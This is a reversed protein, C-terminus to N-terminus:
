LRQIISNRRARYGRYVRELVVAAAAEDQQPTKDEATARPKGDPGLAAKEMQELSHQLAQLQNPGLQAPAGEADTVLVGLRFVAEQFSAADLIKPSAPEYLDDIALSQAFLATARARPVAPATLAAFSLFRPLCVGRDAAPGNGHEGSPDGGSVAVAAAAAAASSSPASAVTSDGGTRRRAFADFLRAHVPTLRLLLANLAPVSTMAARYEALSLRKAHPALIRDFFSAVARELEAPTALASAAGDGGRLEQAWAMRILAEVFESLSFTSRKLATSQQAELQANHFVHMGVHLMRTKTSQLEAERGENISQFLQEPTVASTEPMPPLQSCLRLWNRRTMHIDWDVAGGREHVAHQQQRRAADRGNMGLVSAYHLYVDALVPFLNPMMAAALAAASPAEDAERVVAPLKPLAGLQISPWHREWTLSYSAYREAHRGAHLAARDGSAEDLISRMVYSADVARSVATWRAAAGVGKAEVKAVKEEEAEEEEEEKMELYKPPAPSAEAAGDGAACCSRWALLALFGFLYLLALVPVSASIISAATLDPPLSPPPPPAPPPALPLPPPLYPSPPPPLPPPPPLTPSPPPPSPLPPLPAPPLSPPHPHPLGPPPSPTPPPPSPAPSAPPPSPPAAPLPSPPPPLPQPSPPPLPPLPPSPMPPAESLLQQMAYPAAQWLAVGTAILAIIPAVRAWPFAKPVLDEPRLGELSAREDDRRRQMAVKRSQEAAQAAAYEKPKIQSVVASSTTAATALVGLM